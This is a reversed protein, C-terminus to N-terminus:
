ASHLKADILAEVRARTPESAFRELVESAFAGILMQRASDEGIGRARLYFVAEEDFQGTTSGHSCKVDDAYIELEPKSNVDAGDSMLINNNQQFANIKQADPRVYVKGNFVGTSDDYLIGKYLENSECHPQKHDIMTHNDVHQKGNPLYIGGLDTNCNTGNVWVNIGNRIFAADICATNIAINANSRQDGYVTNIHQHDAGENQIIDIKLTANDAVNLETVVNTFSANAGVADFTQILQLEAGTELSIVHRIQSSCHDNTVLHVLQLPKDAVTNRGVHIFVGDTAYATNLATFPDNMHDAQKNFTQDFLEKQDTRATALSSISVHEQATVSSLDARHFGNVFVMTDAGDILIDPDLTIAGENRMLAYENNIIKGVRTYKWDETKSTPFDTKLLADIADNRVGNLDLALEKGSIGDLFKRAKSITSTDSM